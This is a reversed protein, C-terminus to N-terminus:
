TTSEDAVTASRIHRALVASLALIGISIGVATFDFSIWHGSSVGHAVAPSNWSFTGLGSDAILQTIQAVTSGVALVLAAVRLLRVVIPQLDWDTRASRACRAVCYAM